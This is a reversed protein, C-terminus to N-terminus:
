CNDGFTRIVEHVFLEVLYLFSLCHVCQCLVLTFLNGILTALSVQYLRRMCPANVVKLWIKLFDGKSGFRVGDPICSLSGRQTRTPQCVDWGEISQVSMCVSTNSRSSTVSPLFSPHFMRYINQSECGIFKSLRPNVLRNYMRVSPRGTLTGRNLSCILVPSRIKNQFPWSWSVSHVRHLCETWTSRFKQRRSNWTWKKASRDITNGCTKRYYSSHTPFTTLPLIYLLM